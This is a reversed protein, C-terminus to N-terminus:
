PFNPSRKASTFVIAPHGATLLFLTIMRMDQMMKKSPIAPTINEAKKDSTKEGREPDRALAEIPAKVVIETAM